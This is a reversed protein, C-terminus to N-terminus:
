EEDPYVKWGLAELDADGFADQPLDFLLANAEALLTGDPHYIGAWGEAMRGRDKGAKGVITLPEETPVNGRYKIELKATYM